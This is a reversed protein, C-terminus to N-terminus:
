NTFIDFTSFGYIRPATNYIQSFQSNAPSNTFLHLNDKFHAKRRFCCWADDCFRISSGHMISSPKFILLSFSRVLCCSPLWEGLLCLSVRPWALTDENQLLGNLSPSFMGIITATLTNWLNWENRIQASYAM